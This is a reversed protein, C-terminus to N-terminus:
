KSNERGPLKNKIMDFPVQATIVGALMVACGFLTRSSLHDKLIIWGFIVAFVSELCMLLSALAPPTTKQGFVQFTFGLCCSGLGAYLVPVAANRIEQPQVDREFILMFIVSILGAFLFQGSSLTLNDVRTCYHDVVHIHVAFCFACILACLEGKGLSFDTGKNICIFYLGVVGLAVGFWLNLGAKKGIFLGFIPVLIMYLATIFAVKGAELGYTFAHQQLTTGAFLATGCVLTGAAVNKPSFLEAPKEGPNKKNKIFSYIVMPLLAVGGILLRIGNFTFTGVSAGTKQAVFSM